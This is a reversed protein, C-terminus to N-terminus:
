LWTVNPVGGYVGATYKQFYNEDNRIGEVSDLRYIETESLVNNKEAIFIQTKTRDNLLLHSHTSFILQANYPNTEKNEFLAIIKKAAYPHLSHELEDLVVIGGTSLIPSIKLFILIYQQTGNSEEFIPLSFIKQKSSHVCELVSIKEEKMSNKEIFQRESFKFDSIGLDIEKSFGLVKKCLVENKQLERSISIFDFFINYNMMGLQNVNSTFNKFFSIESLYGTDILSSLLPVNRRQKFRIEDSENIKLDTRTNIFINKAKRDLDFILSIRENKRKLSEKLVEERNFEISYIYFVDNNFFDIEIKTSENKHLGHQNVPIKSEKKLSTYANNIFWFLFSMAKLMTTKGSANAGIVCAVLNLSTSGKQVQRASDDLVDKSTIEMSIEQKDGISYFNEVKFKKLM